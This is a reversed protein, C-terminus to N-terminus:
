VTHQQENSSGPDNSKRVGAGIKYGGKKRGRNRRRERGETQHNTRTSSLRDICISSHSTTTKRIDNTDSQRRREKKQTSAKEPSPEREKPGVREQSSM